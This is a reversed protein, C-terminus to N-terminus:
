TDHEHRIRTDRILNDARTILQSKKKSKWNSVTPDFLQSLLQLILSKVAFLFM